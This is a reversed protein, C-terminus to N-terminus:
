TLHGEVKWLKLLIQNIASWELQMSEAFNKGAPRLRYYKRTRGNEDRQYSQILKRDELKSLVPYLTGEKWNLAGGSIEQVRKIIAYGYNDGQKLVELVIPITSAAILEKSYDSM